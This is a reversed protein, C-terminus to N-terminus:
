INGGLHTKSSVAIANVIRREGTVSRDASGMRKSRICALVIALILSKINDLNPLTKTQNVRRM